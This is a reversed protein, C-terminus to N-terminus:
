KAPKYGCAAAKKMAAVSDDMSIMPTTKVCKCGGGASFAMSLAAASVNDPMDLVVAVDYDGFTIWGGEVKGGLKEVSKSVVAVRNQPKKLLAAMSGTTYSIQVLYSPM